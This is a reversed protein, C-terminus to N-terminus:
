GERRQPGVRERPHSNHLAQRLLTVRAKGYIKDADVAFGALEVKEDRKSEISVWRRRGSGASGRWGTSRWWARAAAM